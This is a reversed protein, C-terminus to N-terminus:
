FTTLAMEIESYNSIHTKKSFSARGLDVLAAASTLKCGNFEPCGCDRLIHWKNGLMRIDHGSATTIPYCVATGNDLVDHVVSYHFGGQTPVYVVDYKEIQEGQVKDSIKRTVNKVFDKYQVIERLAMVKEKESIREVKKIITYLTDLIFDKYVDLSALRNQVRYTLEAEEYLGREKLYSRIEKLDNKMDNSTYKKLGKKINKVLKINLLYSIRNTKKSSNNM